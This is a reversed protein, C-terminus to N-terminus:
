SQQIVSWVANLISALLKYPLIDNTQSSYERLTPLLDTLTGFKGMIMEIHLDTQAEVM